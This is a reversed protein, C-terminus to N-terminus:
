SNKTEKNEETELKLIVMKLKQTVSFSLRKIVIIERKKGERM